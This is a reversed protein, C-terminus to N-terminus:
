QGGERSVAELWPPIDPLTDDLARQFVLVEEESGAPTFGFKRLMGIMVTNTSLVQALARKFGVEKARQLALIFLVKGLGQGQFSDQVVLAFDAADPDDHNRAYRGVGVICDKWEGFGCVAAIAFKRRYDLEVFRKLEGPPIERIPTFFRQYITEKSLSYFLKELLPADQPTIPRFTYSKGGVTGRFTWRELESM